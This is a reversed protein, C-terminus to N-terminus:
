LAARVEPITTLEKKTFHYLQAPRHSTKKKKGAEKILGISLMKKRFNRKDLPRDLIIEYARQLESLTFQRPLLGSVINTYALKGRLRDLATGIIDAHDYALKPLKRISFWRGESQEGISLQEPSALAIYAVSISRSRKDRLPDTFTYLQEIHAGVVHAKEKLHRVAAMDANERETMVGGPLGFANTYHPPRHVPVLFVHPADNLMTFLAVDVAAIAVRLDAISPQAKSTSKRAM